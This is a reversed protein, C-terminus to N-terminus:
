VQAEYIIRWRSAEKIWYQRKKISTKYKGTITDQTFTSVILEDKGPYRFQTIDRLKISIDHIGDFLQRQKSFWTNIDDGQLTKFNRSYNALLRNVNMSELDTRWDEILKIAVQKDTTWKKRNVFEINESIIVPTKGVDITEALSLFDPNALVICGDSALPPRSFTESPVGHLWIGSGSRGNIKDWDNPYNIPLAGPGYFDPLKTGALRSTIYYVGVPTRQDGEKLKNIGLKGQSIYYDTVLRPMDGTNEYLYLRSRRADILLVQKQDDRLQLISSPILDSDPKERIAKLRVSAEARFDKLRETSANQASGFSTVAQTHMLLLDGRILHGLQFHPYAETLEDIKLQANQLNYTALSKYVEILLADPSPLKRSEDLTNPKSITTKAITRPTLLTMSIAVFLFVGCLIPKKILIAM